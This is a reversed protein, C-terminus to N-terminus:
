FVNDNTTGGFDRRLTSVVYNENPSEARIGVYLTREDYVIKVETPYQARASDTPFYQWFFDTKDANQWVVEDLKGDLQITENTFKATLKAQKQAEVSSIIGFIIILIIGLSILIKQM